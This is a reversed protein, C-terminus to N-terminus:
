SLTFIDVTLKWHQLMYPQTQSVVPADVLDLTDHPSPSEDHSRETVHHM